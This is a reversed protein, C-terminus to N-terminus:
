EALSQVSLHLCQKFLVVFPPCVFIKIFEGIIIWACLVGAVFAVITVTQLNTRMVGVASQRLARTLPSRWDGGYGNDDDTDNLEHSNLSLSLSLHPQFANCM